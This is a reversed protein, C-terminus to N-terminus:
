ENSDERKLNAWYSLIKDIDTIQRNSANARVWFEKQNEQAKLFHVSSIFVLFTVYFLQKMFKM